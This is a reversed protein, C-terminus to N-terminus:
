NKQVSIYIGLQQMLMMFDSSHYFASSLSLPICNFDILLRNRAFRTHLKHQEMLKYVRMISPTDGKYLHQLIDSAVQKDDTIPPINDSRDGMIIKKLLYYYPSIMNEPVDDPTIRRKFTEICVNKYSLLQVYDNDNTVIVVFKERNNQLVINADKHKSLMSPPLKKNHLHKTMLAIVDDAELSPFSIEKFNYKKILQPLVVNYTYAFIDKNFVKSKDSRTTKYLPYEESRWVTKRPCDKVFTINDFATKYTKTLQKIKNIFFETYKDLFVKNTAITEVDFTQYTQKYWSKTGFYLMFIYYSTDIFILTHPKGYHRQNYCIDQIRQQEAGVSTYVHQQPPHYKKTIVHNVLYRSKSHIDDRQFRQTKMPYYAASHPDM